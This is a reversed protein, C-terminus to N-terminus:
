IEQHFITPNSSASLTPKYGSKYTSSISSINTLNLTATSPNATPSITLIYTQPITTMNSLTETLQQSLTTTTIQHQDADMVDVIEDSPGVAVGGGM